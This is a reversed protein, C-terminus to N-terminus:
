SLLSLRILFLLLADVLFASKGVAIFYICMAPRKFLCAILIEIALVPVRLIKRLSPKGLTEISKAFSKNIFNIQYGETKLASLMAKAMVNSGHYPPPLQGIVIIKDKM